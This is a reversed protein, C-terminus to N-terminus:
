KQIILKRTLSSHPTSIKINYLGSSVDRLNFDHNNTNTLNSRYVLQGIADFLEITVNENLPNNLQINFNGNNPNPYINFSLESNIDIGTTLVTFINSTDSVCGNSDTVIVYYDNNSTTILTQATEGPIQSGPSGIFWQNGYAVSSFLTDLSQTVIPTTPIPNVIMNVINSTAPNSSACSITSTLICSVVDNNMFTNSSYSLTDTGVNVGNITWQYSPITGGNTPTATFTVMSGACIPNNSSVISVSVPIISDVTMTINNSTAPNGSSCANNSTLICSVVDNSVLSSDSYIPNNTGVNVGNVLWQYIPTTGGNMPTATFTVFSNLCAPNNSAVISIGIPLISDVTMTVSNSTAPNNTTCAENSTLICSVIDNNSLSADTYTPSDTGVYVGNVTWQYAPSTGGNLPNATFTVSNGSCITDASALISVNVSLSPSVIMTVSNSNAPSGTACTANSTMFCSIVDGNVLLGNTYTPNDTGVNVGNLIWQYVPTIGGATPTATFTVSSGSCIPNADATVIVSAVLSNSVSMTISNSTAPSGTACSANSTLLCTVVDNNSLTSSTFTSSNTGVNFGNLTWQYIPTTGGNTPTATFTVLTGSCVPNADAVINVSVPLSTNVTISIINSTAPSGTACTANSTLICSIFDGNVLTSNTYTSSNTGDNVGNVQWQYAPTIGGNTSTASFTVSTGNCIPNTSALINISVPLNPNVTMIIANSAAPSGTACNANSTLACTVIDGNVLAANTYTASNIGVNVGNLKWQYIPTTGGNIPTATFIVSTGSCVTNSSAGITISVPLNPNVIMTIANSAAPSGTVCTANSTLICTVIDSNVFTANTYTSSNTGVNVGNLKWQYAPSTGGNTPTATFTVSTGSCIPNTSTAIVISAPLNPNVTMTIANSTAPNGTACTANSTLVCTVIDTNALAANTYTASNIGVNVGNLKWQYAPTTGGNTPTATFTVSTGSCVTNSSAGITISVPLNPNVTMTIANSTAPSGTVCTANSTLVCTIINGNSLTSSSYTSSNTGVNFGNVVWQYAPTTGGNTPTATFTVSTGSCVPNASAAIVISAPLNPNVIMTIANSTAPSGTVCTANSTLVCTVVDSNILSANTYTASNTGVNVGNLKWQYAPTTGGNTPTATFTVSTAACVPNSSALIAVSATLISNVSMTIVNSTASTPIACTSSSTLVCTVLDGNVLASNTYTSSNTGINVGNLKWQYTPTLGGNTPTATFTVSTTPCVPNASAVIIISPVLNASVNMTIANSTAPSGTVCTANSTLVCTVIDSNALTANTYTTSNTGVNVGNLKWQYAPTTGGNTPTATFTVSTGNCIPNASTSISVSATLSSSVSMTISNSNAPNGTACTANSTLVCTVIDSNALTTNTYTTSNTGVNVGNLKWQYAPTTGGNTPTATFTVSTGNCIPNSSAAIVISAPLNANVTMTIINSAAPSGTVCTANSTLVCLVVDGNSFASNTYTPSNTGVNFGNVVWQYAPTTGGNTPTATFIVLTGSCIPNASASVVISAPLNPNVTMTIANSTAPSGSVCTANSTLVCTVVDSNLLTSNTYTASNTGVNVGNLKWQYAPTTGGNTPTATFTVSTAPCVPNASASIIVSATINPNVIMTIANSTSPSGTACTANSTLVCTVIDGNILTANTYTTSNTGVNVGNLKWQYTPSIGGNTPTATFTVSTAPCVPNSSASISISAPLNPNVTMTIANSTAPSGTVCTANSTLVCTVIDGNILAANTYTASNTGVNVGNLKWQYSPTAGGNTPTAIFTVSTAACVPNSSASITVSAPLNPNVVMTVANSTAPSGTACIANSTMVCTLIDSNVLAANTYTTSNIGVNLGNLKWQYTPTTGGNTPTATFTVSTAPCVPNASAAIVISAPLNPNVVMTITNSTGTTPIACPSSSTLVCSITNGNTLSANIYTPSNTGVNVGNLKWQYIPTTGGNTPAATFTVSTAPCIPNASASITVAPVLTASVSMTIANSTAPSGTACTANSTMVCTVIDGNVLAANTYTTANTGVNVGNLKWQYTPTTGGNTPTATFTVSAGTCIPNASAAIILSAPLNPNVTMTVANSTAPSGTACTANSALMCTIIDGTALASNTYTASNTGVNAGNLLWQYIPTTGGNTPNATFTISTGACTPNASAAISISVPLNPNVTMTIVNSTANIPVACAASSTLVCSITNGTVLAANTYTPSNTGVNVGNLKWQYSPTAGGNTPTATFTVSTGVCTPNASASITITPALTATVTMTIINSTAPSGSVCPANSTMVCSVTNGNALAANTYTSSNTGVNVGNLKWQYTPTTGGNLPTATFTVSTGTCIPNASASVSVSAVVNPNVTMTIANSTAPSGTACTANSTMVCTVIDSNVLAANTYTTSNTGVNVGNLKWQYTPTTGGNTPTATFTVSTGACVPNSSAAISVSAPLNPNVTMTVINSTAPSGTACTANSTMVCTVIDSNVLAANTYTTSNTGVNVGNLKWQYTPTTGGNTPTATFTVSIGSCIPNASASISVSAPLSTNVVMTIANSTAPNGTACTANSTMVCTLIDSNVLAANTYTTSNTGVNVGNLKWQYVPTTGGNTPTATFTVLSGSCIPNASAAITISAPLNPNVTMTVTNSTAPSGTACTANSTMTCTVTNGNALAANTYTTSNTGVNVGNLKWQYTPTTGGNTPTATFTVSTGNCIPNASASISISAPLNPNVTMTVANSTAPSGTVCSANSTLQCTIIDGSVLAANIYTTSNAGVNVGNLKWQYVPVTGGNTPVATFTVSTGACVPNASTSISISAPVNPNVTMTVANSTAPSGTACTANSTMLCTVIDGNVLAANTYTTSNTGVNVGNLKWQYAPTAGGNTPTATFTVSTGACVPNASAAISVSAAVSSNVTMTVTNSTAPSGTVCTANSTMTCTITNGNALAANTYTTSNTGVNIGNLKWQYIPTTGGNTPTATFTVSTGACIPNGSAAISVSAAFSANVTMTVANSTAPSGTACTANSTMDCTVIDGNVLAANTYTTSNTGVNVGNLKWQYIPTTGGNTPTATFTVSTGTCIPNSSAAITISAPLNPNVTMTIANSTAPSGTVCSANSTLVCTVIDGNVLAANNYTTSNTGVNVGNLKWQYTPTTGGNTPTATYTISTGACTPNASAAISISAVVNPNVTMTVTNSTAPSGTACTANSTMSCTVTNGNALAANTYTTSNIGVNIGNLKWQYIPTTGGNTPTATFTVSTGSCIPNASAVISISAAVNLNVTMTVANSTAPSGTACTANSTLQCTVIDGNAFAANTYTTINTGVNIGNLKWQYTPTTGGNTPTATFTVSTGACVPNASAAISVSAAINPNVTMTVANSTAPSGTVCNQNSTLVCIVIDGNILAANTYTTTNTGVNIGNLKWQYIPTTGGNTPTATFTVSTGSCIPNTSAVISISAASATGVTTALIQATGNGCLNSPTVQVNGSTAGVTVTISNTGAGATVLWGAPVSWAYTVGSVNTVSYTQSTGSCPTALGTIASPQAPVGVNIFATKTISNTGTVNTVQLTVNYIGLTNYTVTPHELISSAPTGGPFTWLWSTPSNTSIDTFTVTGGACVQTKNSYFNAVPACNITITKAYSEPGAGCANNAHVTINGFDGPCAYNVTISNTTGGSAITAFNPVTWAYSTAGPVVTVSYAVGNQGGSVVQTGTITGPAVPVPNVTFSKNPSTAGIGCVNEGYVTINGATQNQAFDVTITNTYQGSVITVGTPVTWNYITASTITPVTYVVGTQGQCVTAPGTIIGAAGPVYSCATGSVYIDDILTLAAATVAGGAMSVNTTKLWLLMVSAQNDCSSPLAINNIVGQTWNNATAMPPIDILGYFNAGGDPSYYLTFNKPAATSAGSQKSSVKINTYGLTTFEVSWYDNTTLADNWGTSSACKDTGGGAGTTAFAPAVVSTSRTITKTSNAAIGGDATINASTNPFNWFVVNSVPSVLIYGTKTKSAAGNANTANLTADYLGATNYQITPPNQVISTGPTGGPLTWSWATPTPGGTSQDTFSITTTPIIETQSAFFDVDPVNTLPKDLCFEPLIYLSGNVGFKSQYPVWSAGDLCYATNTRGPGGNALYCAFTDLNAVNTLSFGAFFTSGVSVPAFDIYNIYGANLSSVLVNKTMLVTGPVGANNNWITFTVNTAGGKIDASAVAVALSKVKGTLNGITYKDAYATVTTNNHGPLYGWFGTPANYYSVGDGDQINSDFSCNNFVHIYDTKTTSISGNQNTATLTVAYYGETNYVINTPNQATSTAPTGGAFSWSWSTAFLSQDAYSVSQGPSVKRSTTAIFNPQPLSNGYGIGELCVDDIEWAYGCGANAGLEANLSKFTFRIKVNTKGAAASSIDIRQVLPNTTGDNTAYDGHIIYKTSTVFNDSSVFVLTSDYYKRYNEEFKLTVAEYNSCNQGTTNTLHAYQNGGCLADSDFLAYNGGSTSNIRGMPGSFTGTPATAVIAWSNPYTTTTLTWNAPTSFNDCWISTTPPGPNVTIYATKEQSQLGALPTTTTLKVKFIGQQYYFINTPNQLTSTAPTGGEFEWLWTTAGVTIDTFNVTQGEYITTPTGYFDPYGNFPDFGNVTTALNNVPDLWTKLQTTVGGPTLDWHYYFKGYDFSSGTACSAATGGTLTGAIRHASNFIPSGSSGGETQGWGNTTAVYSGTWHANTAGTYTGDFWTGQGLATTFTSIKKIDGAPHHIGVGSTPATNTRDWGNYYPNYSQPPATNLLVLCFDSGGSIPSSAKLSCGTITYIGTFPDAGPNACTPSEYKFYFQWQNMETATAFVTGMGHCHDATLFYPTGSNNTTNVLSGTCWDWAGNELLWIEAVGKKESQWAAGETCNVNVECALSSGFGTQKTAKYQNLFPVEKYVYIINSISISPLKSAQFATNQNIINNGNITGNIPANPDIKTPLEPPMVYELTVAEGQVLETSFIRSSPNNKSTYAGLVQSEFENYLFLKGGKPIYFDNYCVGIAKAGSSSLKLRWIRSGDPMDTWTGSTIMNIGVPVSRGAWEPGPKLLDEQLAQNVDIGPLMREDIVNSIQTKYIFSLPKGGESPQAFSSNFNLLVAFIGISILLFLKKM